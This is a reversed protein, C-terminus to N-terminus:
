ELKTRRSKPKKKRTQSQGATGPSTQKSKKKIREESSIIEDSKTREKRKQERANRSRIKDLIGECYGEEKHLFVDLEIKTKFQKSEWLDKIKRDEATLKAPKRGAGTPKRRRERNEKEFALYDSIVRRLESTEVAVQAYNVNSADVKDSREDTKRSDLWGIWVEAVSAVDLLEGVTAVVKSGGVYPEATLFITSRSLEDPDRYEISIFSVGQKIRHEADTDRGIYFGPEDIGCDAWLPMMKEVLTDIQSLKWRRDHLAEESLKAVLRLLLRRLELMSRQSSM